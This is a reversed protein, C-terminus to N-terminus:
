KGFRRERSQFDALAERLKQPTFDPMLTNTFYLEAYESQWMLFGSLRREGGTRIILDVPPFNATDLHKEFTEKTTKDNQGQVSYDFHTWFRKSIRSADAKQGSKGPHCSVYWKNIARLIEDRGGYNLAFVVTINTNDKTKEVADSIKEQIDKSFKSLDGITQIRVGKAHLREINKAFLGRFIRMLAAVELKSRNWNDTSFAWLTLYSIEQIIAEDVLPELVRDVIVEHGAFVSLGQQRAWRRNGDMIIAVHKPIM